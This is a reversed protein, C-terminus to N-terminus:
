LVVKWIFMALFGLVFSGFVSFYMWRKAKKLEQYEISNQDYKKFSKFSLSDEMRNKDVLKTYLWYYRVWRYIIHIFLLIAILSFWNM